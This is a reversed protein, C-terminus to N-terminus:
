GSANWSSDCFTAPARSCRSNGRFVELGNARRELVSFGHSGISVVAVPEDGALFRCGRSLAQKVPIAPLAIQRSFRGTVAAGSLTDWGWDSLVARVHQGPDKHHDVVHRRTWRLAQGDRVLEVAKVTEAGVDLGVFREAQALGQETKM